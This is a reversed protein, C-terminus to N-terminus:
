WNYGIRIDFFEASHRHARLFLGLYMKPFPLFKAGYRQFIMDGERDPNHLYVGLDFVARFRGLVHEYGGTIGMIYQAHKDTSLYVEKVKQKTQDINFEMGTAIYSHRSINFQYKGILGYVAYTKNDILLGKFGIFGALLIRNKRLSFDKRTSSFRRFNRPHISYDLGISLTPFNLGKNPQKVGGNSVHNYNIAANLILQDSLNLYTTFNLLLSYTINTSYALNYPNSISDYPNNLYAFGFAPRISFQVRHQTNFVPEVFGM